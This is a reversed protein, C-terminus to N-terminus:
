AARKEALTQLKSPTTNLLRAIPWLETEYKFDGTVLRSRLTTRPIGSRISAANESIGAGNLAARVVEALPNLPTDM